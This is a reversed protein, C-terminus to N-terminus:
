LLGLYFAIPLATGGSTAAYAYYSLVSSADSSDVTGDLNVDAAKTQEADLPNAAGTAVAAYAALIKSADSSDVAGSADVDGLTAYDGAEAIDSLEMFTIGHENAFREAETGKRGAIVFYYNSSTGYDSVGNRFTFPEECTIETVSAPIYLMDNTSFRGEDEFYYSELSVMSGFTIKELYPCSSFTNFNDYSFYDLNEPIHVEKLNVCGDVFGTYITEVTDPLNLTTLSICNEFAYVSIHNLTDSFEINELATCDGFVRIGLDVVTDAMTVNRLKTYGEFAWDEIHTVTYGGITEPINIATVATNVHGEIVATGEDNVSYILGSKDTITDDAAITTVAAATCASVAATMSLLVSMIKKKM